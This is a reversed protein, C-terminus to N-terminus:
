HCCCHSRRKATGLRSCSSAGTKTEVANNYVVACFRLHTACRDGRGELVAGTCFQHLGPMPFCCLKRAYQYRWFGSPWKQGPSIVIRAILTGTCSFVKLVLEALVAAADARPTCVDASEAPHSAFRAPTIM